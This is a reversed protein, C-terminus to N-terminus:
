WEGCRAPLHVPTEYAPLVPCRGCGRRRVLGTEFSPKIARASATMPTTAQRLENYRRMMSRLPNLSVAAARVCPRSRIFCKIACFAIKHQFIVSTESSRLCRTRVQAVFQASDRRVGGGNGARLRCRTRTQSGARDVAACAPRNGCLGSGRKIKGDGAPFIFRFLFLRRGAPRSISRACLASMSVWDSPNLNGGRM